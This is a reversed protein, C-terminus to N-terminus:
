LAKDAWPLARLRDESIEKGSDDTGYTGDEIKALSADIKELDSTIRAILDQNVEDLNVEEANEDSGSGLETHPRIGTLEKQLRAKELLLKQKMEEIFQPSLHSM